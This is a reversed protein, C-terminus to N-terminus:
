REHSLRLIIEAMWNLLLLALWFGGLSRLWLQEDRLFRLAFLSVTLLIFFSQLPNNSPGSFLRFRRLIAALLWVFLYLILWGIWVLLPTLLFAIIKWGIPRALAAQEHWLFICPFLFVLWGLGYAEVASWETRRTKKGAGRALLRPLAFWFGVESM